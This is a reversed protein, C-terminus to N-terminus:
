KFKPLAFSILKLRRWVMIGAAINWLVTVSATAYAAGIAGSTSILIYNLILNIIASVTMIKAADRQHGTMNLLLLAPGAFANVLQGFILIRLLPIAGAFSEPFVLTLYESGFFLIGAGLIGIGFVALSSIRVMRQLEQMKGRAFLDAAIPHLIANISTLAIILLEAVKTAVRYVGVESTDVIAGLMMMDAQVLILNFGSTWLMDRSTLFWQKKNTYDPQAKRAPRPVSIGIFRLSFIFVLLMVVVNIIMTIESSLFSEGDHQVLGYRFGFYIVVAALALLAPRLIRLPLQSFFVRKFGDMIGEFIQLQALIPLGVLAISMTIFFTDSGFNQALWPRLLFLTALSITSVLVSIKLSTLRAYRLMGRLQEWQEQGAYSALFRTASKNFGFRGILVLGTLWAMAFSFVGFEETGMIRTLIIMMGFSLGASLARAIFSGGSGRM